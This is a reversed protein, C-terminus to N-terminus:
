EKFSNVIDDIFKFYGDPEVSTGYTNVVAVRAGTRDAVFEAPRRPNFPEMLVLAVSQAQMIELVRALHAPSPPVGPLPELAVPSKLGFRKFFYDLSKHFTVVPKDQWPHMVGRWGRLLAAHGTEALLENLANDSEAQWLREGTLAQVLQEGFMAHDLRELFARLGARYADAGAPDLSVLREALARAVARGIMPDLMFHPNGSAHVDGMARTISSDPVDLVYPLHAGADFHGPQGPRILRNRSNDLLPMEWGIELELGMRIWLDADRAMVVYNPRPQIFHPDERGSTISRVAVRDGGIAAALAGLEPTTAVVQLPRAQLSVAALILLCPALVRGPNRLIINKM